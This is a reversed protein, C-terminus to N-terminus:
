VYYQDSSKISNLFDTVQEKTTDPKFSWAQLYKLQEVSQLQNVAASGIKIERTVKGRGKKKYTVDRWKVLNADDEEAYASKDSASSKTAMGSEVDTTNDILESDNGDASPTKTSKDSLLSSRQQEKRKRVNTTGSSLAIEAKARAQRPQRQIPAAQVAPVKAAPVTKDPLKPTVVITSTSPTSSKSIALKLQQIITSQDLILVNQESIKIELTSVKQVLSTLSSTLERLLKELAVTTM